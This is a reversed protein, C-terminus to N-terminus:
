PRSDDYVGTRATVRRNQVRRAQHTSRHGMQRYVLVGGDGVAGGGRSGGAGSGIAANGGNGGAGGIERLWSQTESCFVSSHREMKPIDLTKSLTAESDSTQPRASVPVGPM